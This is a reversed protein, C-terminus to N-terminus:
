RDAGLGVAVVFYSAPCDFRILGRLSGARLFHKPVILILQLDILLPDFFAEPRGKLRHDAEPHPGNRSRSARRSDRAQRRFANEQSMSNPLRHFVRQRDRHDLRGEPSQQHRRNALRRKQRYGQYRCSASCYCHGRDCHRCISFLMGCARCIRPRLVVGCSTATAM